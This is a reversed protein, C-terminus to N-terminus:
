KARFGRENVHMASLEKWIGMHGPQGQLRARAVCIYCNEMQQAISAVLRILNNGSVYRSTHQPSLELPTHGPSSFRMRAHSASGYTNCMLRVSKSLRVTCAALMGEFSINLRLSERYM